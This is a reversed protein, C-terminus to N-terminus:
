IHILSLTAVYRVNGDADKGLTIDQIIANLSDNPDLVGFARGSLQHYGAVAVPPTGIMLPQDDDVVIETVRAYAATPLMVLVAAFALGAALRRVAPVGAMRRQLLGRLAIRDEAQM